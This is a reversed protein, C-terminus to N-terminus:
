HAPVDAWQCNNAKACQVLFAAAKGQDTQAFNQQTVGTLDPPMWHSAAFQQFAPTVGGFFVNDGGLARSTWSQDPDQLSEGFLEAGSGMRHCGTCAAAEPSVVYKRSAWGNAKQAVLSFPAGKGLPYAADEGQRPVVHTGDQYKAQDLWPSHIWPDADHCSNCSEGKFSAWMGDAQVPDSISPVHTADNKVFLANQVFCARGSQPNHGIIAIDNYTTVAAGQTDDPARCILVWRTGQDNVSRAVHTYPACSGRLWDPRDCRAPKSSPSTVGGNADTITIPIQVSYSGNICDYTAYSGDPQKPFFPIPGLEKECLAGYTSVAHVPPASQATGDDLAAVQDLLNATALDWARLLTVQTKALVQTGKLVCAEAVPNVGANMKARQQPTPDDVIVNQDFFEGLLDQSVTPGGYVTPGTGTAGGTV